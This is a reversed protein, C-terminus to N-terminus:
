LYKFLEFQVNELLKENKWSELLKMKMLFCARNPKWFWSMCVSAHLYREILTILECKSYFSHCFWRFITPGVWFVHSRPMSILWIVSIFSLSPTNFSHSYLPLQAHTSSLKISAMLPQFDCPFCKKLNLLLINSFIHFHTLEIIM